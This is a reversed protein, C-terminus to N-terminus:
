KNASLSLPQIDVAQAWSPDVGQSNGAKWEAGEKVMQQIQVEPAKGEAYVLFEIDVTDDTIVKKALLQIGQFRIIEEAERFGKEFQERQKPDSAGSQAPTAAVVRDYNGSLVAQFYTQLAAEPTQFGADTLHDKSIYSGTSEEALNTPQKAAATKQSELEQRLTGVMGRLKLLEVANGNLHENEDRMAALRNTLGDRERTLQEVEGALPAQEQRLRQTEARAKAARNAEYIGVGSLMVITAAVM